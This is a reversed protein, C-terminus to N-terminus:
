VRTRRVDVTVPKGNLTSLSGMYSPDVMHKRAVESQHTKM